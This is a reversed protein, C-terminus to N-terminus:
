RREKIEIGLSRLKRYLHTREMGAEKAMKSVNGGHKELQYDLYAKEFQERAQRLPQDFSVLGELAQAQVPPPAGLASEVEKQSIEDGAGLILVRQVLNKLERVNGPWTYNRLFNQAGVSFRRYPLKEHTAFYDLYFNLLDPVDEAHERLPPVHLPVVNLHYFLDERFRGAQVEEELNRQTVAIIRVDIRVPESGGIRLFSGSDLAGLLKAQADLEMDAVEDLLLTGGAAKELSGYHIHEGEETGFLERAANGGALTSVSLDVFPRERRASQSHLYRAFTERGSGADGTILVWTDHQAIRKVQERLRLMAASRGVPEHVLPTRRKLGINEQHLKDAELAREVTLLLKAMSLPKELFDYAGLRTAEVATEVTGHGSMMIVPCPLSDEEAWEKLLTIGDLDPMWIDLLILDPRRDRLAHRAAEGNEAGAVTYGEDELIDQVLGRIDPEDDVVLIHTASM